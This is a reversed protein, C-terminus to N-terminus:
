STHTAPPFYTALISGRNRVPLVPHLSFRECFSSARSSPLLTSINPSSWLTLNPCTSNWINMYFIHNQFEYPLASSTLCIKLDNPFVWNCMWFEGPLGMQSPAHLYPFQGLHMPNLYFKVHKSERNILSCNYAEITERGIKVWLLSLCPIKLRLDTNRNLGAKRHRPSMGETFPVVEDWDMGLLFYISALMTIFHLLRHPNLTPWRKSGSMKSSSLMLVHPLARYVLIQSSGQSRSEHWMM